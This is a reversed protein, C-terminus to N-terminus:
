LLDFYDWECSQNVDYEYYYDVCEGLVVQVDYGFDWLCICEYDNQDGVYCNLFVECDCNDDVYNDISQCIGLVIGFVNM